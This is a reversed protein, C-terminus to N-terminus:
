SDRFHRHARLQTFGFWLGFASLLMLLSTPEPVPPIGLVRYTAIFGDDCCGGDTHFTNWVGFSGPSFGTSLSDAWDDFPGIVDLSYFSGLGGHERYSIPFSGPHSEFYDLLGSSWMFKSGTFKPDGFLLEDHALGSSDIFPFQDSYFDYQYLEHRSYAAYDIHGMGCPEFELELGCYLHGNESEISLINFDVTGSLPLPVAFAQLPFLLAATWTLLHWFRM